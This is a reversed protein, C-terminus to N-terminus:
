AGGRRRAEEETTVEADAIPVPISPSTRRAAHRRVCESADAEGEACREAHQRALQELDLVADLDARQAYRRACERADVEIRERRAVLERALQDVHSLPDEISKSM